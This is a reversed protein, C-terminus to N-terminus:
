QPEAGAEPSPSESASTVASELEWVAVSGLSARGGEAAVSLGTSDAAPYVRSTLCHRDNAYLEIVSGDLFARLSLPEDYPTVTLRQVDAAGVGDRSSASRDVLLDSERTYRIATREDRDPSEFVSLEFAAADALSVELSVELTRGSVGLSRRDDDLVAPVATSLRRRRLRDVEAAPRQRLRGDDGLALVRPLSLAGSWGAGWQAREDRAEPLWGWTLSRDGDRLSQPAYFDGHDLLGRTAVEFGGDRVEGLFYVVDEYNSVHLLSREGLDLLEPCEWVTGHGDSGVLLPGEYEWERLDPSSYLLAVGGEDVVGSGILQYWTDGDRWVAHDRFEVEWHETSLLDLDSPPEEIVPNDPDKGWTRLDPDASTALCPLQWRGDGGTYLVTPTGDDDVACGSWCGDRDPGDPSPALAVPEDRWHLLDESSAHGWHIANHFPGAPNYQYFVHYRGNWRILGNPDNLWNAPPTFHYRPRHHDGAFRTRLDGLEAATKPRAPREADGALASLCGAAFTSRADAVAPDAPEDFTLPAGVGIVGGGRDWSVVRMERPADDGGRVTSALVEGRSPVVREYHATPVAGRDCLPIRASDFASVAPHDGYLPRWLVGVPETVSEVGVADPPVPDVGLAEVAAMARLGLLLGGGDALFEALPGSVAAAVADDVPAERHWWAVDFSGANGGFEALSVVEADAARDLLWAAAARQEDSLKERYVFAIGTGDGIM